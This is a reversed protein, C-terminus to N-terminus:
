TFILAVIYYEPPLPKSVGLGVDVLFIHSHRASGVGETSGGEASVQAPRTVAVSM